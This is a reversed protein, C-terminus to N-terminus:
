STIDCAKVALEIENVIRNSAYGDLPMLHKARLQYHTEKDVLRNELALGLATQLEDYNRVLQIGGTKIVQNYHEMDYRRASREYYPLSEDEFAIAISPTDLAVADLAITGASSLVVEAHYLLQAMHKLRGIEPPEILVRPSHSFHGLRSQWENDLPHPRIFLYINDGFFSNEIQSVLRNFIEPEHKGLRQSYAGFLIYRDASTLGFQALFAARDESIDPNAYVDMQPWGVVGIREIPINHYRELDVKVQASQTLIRAVGPVLPGKTTPQDWSGNLGLIPINRAKAALLYSTILGNQLHTLVMLEPQIDEFVQEVEVHRQWDSYLTKYLLNYVTKSKAFPVGLIGMTPLGELFAHWRTYFSQKLRDHFGRFNMLRNFRYVLSLHLFFGTVALFDDFFLRSASHVNDKRSSWYRFPRVIPRWAIPNGPLQKLKEADIKDRSVVTISLNEQLALLRAVPTDILNRASMEYPLIILVRQLARKQNHPSISANGNQNNLGRNKEM